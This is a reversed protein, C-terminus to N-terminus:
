AAAERDRASVRVAGSLLADVLGRKVECLCTAHDREREVRDDLVQVAAVIERQEQLTPLPFRLPLLLSKNLGPRSLGQASGRVEASLRPIGYLCYMLFFPDARRQDATLRYVHKTIISPEIGSPVVCCRGVTAMVTILLDLPRARFRELAVFKAEDIRHNSGISFRGDLVNDIGIVLRGAAVFESHKLESGFPGSQIAAPVNAALEAYTVTKWDEPLEGIETRRFRPHRGPMGRTLLEEMMSKKVVQLQDIVAETKEITDDV